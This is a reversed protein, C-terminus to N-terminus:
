VNESNRKQLKNLMALNEVATQNGQKAALDLYHKAKVYNVPVNIGKMYLWGMRNQSWSAGLDATALYDLNAKKLDKYHYEYLQARLEFGFPYAPYEKNLENLREIALNQLKGDIAGQASWLLVNPKKDALFYKYFYDSGAKYNKELRAQQALHYYYIGEIKKKDKDSEHFCGRARSPRATHPCPSRSRLVQM